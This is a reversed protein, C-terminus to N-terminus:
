SALRLANAGKGQGALLVLGRFGAPRANGAAKMIAFSNAGMEPILDEPIM